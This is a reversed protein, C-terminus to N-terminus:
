FDSAPLSNLRHINDISQAHQTIGNIHTCVTSIFCFSNRLAHSIALLAKALWVLERVLSRNSWRPWSARCVIRQRRFSTVIASPYRQQASKYNTLRDVPPRRPQISRNFDMLGVLSLRRSRAKCGGLSVPGSISIAPTTGNNM